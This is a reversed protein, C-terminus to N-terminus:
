NLLNLMYCVVLVVIEMCFCFKGLSVFQFGVVIVKVVEEESFDGELGIMVLVDEGFCLIDKLLFKEGEYCYVIFKQGKFDWLVFKNFDMMENLVLM